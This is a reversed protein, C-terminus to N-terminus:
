ILLYEKMLSVYLTTSGIGRVKIPDPVVLPVQAEIICEDFRSLKEVPTSEERTYSLIRVDAEVPEPNHDRGEQYRRGAFDLAM